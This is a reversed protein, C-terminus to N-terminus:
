HPREDAGETEAMAPWCNTTSPSKEVGSGLPRSVSMALVDLSKVRATGPMKPVPLLDIYSGPLYVM